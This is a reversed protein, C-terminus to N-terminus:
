RTSRKESPVFLESLTVEADGSLTDRGSCIYSIIRFIVNVSAGTPWISLAGSKSYRM